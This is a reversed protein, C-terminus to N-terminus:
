SYSGFTLLYLSVGVRLAAGGITSVPGPGSQALDQGVTAGIKLPKEGGKGDQRSVGSSAFFCNWIRVWATRSFSLWRSESFPLRRRGAQAREGQPHAGLIRMSGRYRFGFDDTIECM